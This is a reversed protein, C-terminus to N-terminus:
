AKVRPVDEWRTTWSPSLKERKMRWEAEDGGTALGFGVARRGYRSNAADLAKMLADSKRTDVVSFLDQHIRGARCLDTLNVGAKTWECGEPYGKAGRALALAARVIRGSDNTAPTLRVSASLTGAVVDQRFRNTLAYVQIHGAAMGESRLRAAATQAFESIAAVVDELNTTAGGFSRSCTCSKRDDPQTELEHAVEGRLEAATRVLVVGFERKIWKPEMEALDYATRINFGLLREAYKKGVGWVDGVDVRKLAVPIHEPHGALDVVGGAKPSKKALRNALKALTKTPAIGVCIPLGLEQAVAARAKRGLAALDGPMGTLDLFCEDISYVEISPVYESLVSMMRASMDAYLAYNSSLVEIAQQDCQREIKFYPEGMKIGLAKAESSRAVACGDNNSLIITPKGRYYPSFVRECSVYFNNGDALGFVPKM